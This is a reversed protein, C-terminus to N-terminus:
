CFGSRSRNQDLDPDDNKPTKCDLVQLFTGPGKQGGRLDEDWVEEAAEAGFSLPTPVEAAPTCGDPGSRPNKHAPPGRETLAPVLINVAFHFHQFTRRSQHRETETSSSRTQGNTGDEAGEYSRSGGCFRGAQSGVSGSGTKSSRLGCHFFYKCVFGDKM